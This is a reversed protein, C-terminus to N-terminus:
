YSADSLSDCTGRRLSWKHSTDKPGDDVRHLVGSLSVAARRSPLRMVIDGQITNVQQKPDKPFSAVFTDLRDHGDYEINACAWRFGHTRHIVISRGVFTNEDYLNLGREQFQYMYTSQDHLLRGFRGSLDGLECEESNEMCNMTYNENSSRDDPDFHGGVSATSCPYEQLLAFNIPCDHVHWGWMEDEFQDLGDFEAVVTIPDYINDQSFTVNGRIGNMDFHATVAIRIDSRPREFRWQVNRPEWRAAQSYM